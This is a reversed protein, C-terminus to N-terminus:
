DIEVVTGFTGSSRGIKETASVKLAEYTNFASTAGDQDKYAKIKWDMGADFIYKLSPDLQLISTSDNFIRSPRRYVFYSLTKTASLKPYLFVRTKTVMAYDTPTGTASLGPDASLIDGLNSHVIQTSASRDLISEDSLLDVMSYQPPEVTSSTDATITSTVATNNSVTGYLYYDSGDKSVYIRRYITSPEYTSTGDYTDLATITLSLNPGSPTIANSEDSPQSEISNEIRGTADFIVFTVKIKYSSSATLSGGALAAITPASPIQPSLDVEQDGSVFQKKLRFKLFPWGYEGCINEQIENMWELVKATITTGTGLGAKQLYRTLLASGNWTASM